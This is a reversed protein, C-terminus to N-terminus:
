EGARGLRNPQALQNCRKYYLWGAVWSAPLAVLGVVLYFTGIEAGRREPHVLDAVFAKQM